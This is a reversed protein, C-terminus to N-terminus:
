YLYSHFIVQPLKKENAISNQDFKFKGIHTRGGCFINQNEIADNDLRFDKINTKLKIM